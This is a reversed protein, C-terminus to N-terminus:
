EYEKITAETFEGSDIRYKLEQASWTAVHKAHRPTLYLALWLLAFGCFLFGIAYILLVLEHHPFWFVIAIIGLLTLVAGLLRDVV